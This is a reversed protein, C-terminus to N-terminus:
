DEWADGDGDEADLAEEVLGKEELRRRSPGGLLSFLQLSGPVKRGLLIAMVREWETGLEDRQIFVAGMVLAIDESEATAANAEMWALAPQVALWVTAGPAAELIGAGPALDPHTFSRGAISLRLSGAEGEELLFEKAGEIPSESISLVALDVDPQLGLASLLTGADPLPLPGDLPGELFWRGDDERYLPHVLM